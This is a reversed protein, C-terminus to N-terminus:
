GIIMAFLSDLEQLVGDKLAEQALQPLRRPCNPCQSPLMGQVFCVFRGVRFLCLPLAIVQGPPLLDESSGEVVAVKLQASEPHAYGAM